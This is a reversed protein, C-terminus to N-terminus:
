LIFGWLEKVKSVTQEAKTRAKISGKHLVQTLYDQNNMLDLYTSHIPSLKTIIVEALDKKFKAFGSTCYRSVISEIKEDSIISYIDLLNSMEPRNEKDYSIYSLHDTKAKKIKQHIIDASDKLNIRSFDSSDSKSMKKTGDRLSMIRMGTNRILPEPVKLVEKNFKRNINGAIDRTLELHQKQDEGVPVLDAEYLLIDAAMLVPYSFLGLCAKEQDRGAKDKFQTMRKLWGLPTICNLLWALETHEKVMSQAFFAVRDANLGAALSIATSQYISCRLEETDTLVTIAHLDALFFFCEYAEQVEVWNKIAGLYNGLHLAGTAQVASLIVKKM